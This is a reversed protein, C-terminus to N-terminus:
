QTVTGAAGPVEVNSHRDDKEIYTFMLVDEQEVGHQKMVATTCHDCMVRLQISHSNHHGKRVHMNEAMVCSRGVYRLQHRLM